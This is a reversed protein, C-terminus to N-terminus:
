YDHIFSEIDQRKRGLSGKRSTLPLTVAIKREAFLGSIFFATATGAGIYLATRRRSRDADTAGSIAAIFLDYFTDGTNMDPDSSDYGILGAGLIFGFVAGAVPYLMNIKKRKVTITQISGEPFVALQTPVGSANLQKSSSIYVLSDSVHWLYGKKMGTDTKVIASFALKNKKVTAPQEFSNQCLMLLACLVVVRIVLAKQKSLLKKLIIFFITPIM